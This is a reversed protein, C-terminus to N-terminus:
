SLAVIFLAITAADSIRTATTAVRACDDDGAGTM